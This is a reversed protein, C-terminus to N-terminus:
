AGTVLWLKLQFAIMRELAQSPLPPYPRTSYIKVGRKTLGMNLVNRPGKIPPRRKSYAWKDLGGGGGNPAKPMRIPGSVRAPKQWYQPERFKSQLLEWGKSKELGKFSRLRNRLQGWLGGDPPYYVQGNEHITARDQRNWWGETGVRYTM